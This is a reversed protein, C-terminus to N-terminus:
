DGHELRWSQAPFGILMTLVVVGSKGFGFPRTEKLGYGM